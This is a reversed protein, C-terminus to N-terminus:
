RTAENREENLDTKGDLALVLEYPTKVHVLYDDRYSSTQGIGVFGKPLSNKNKQFFEEVGGRGALTQLSEGPGLTALSISEQGRGQLASLGYRVLHAANWNERGEGFAYFGIIGPM